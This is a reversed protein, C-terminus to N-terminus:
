IQGVTNIYECKEDTVNESPGWLQLENPSPSNLYEKDKVAIFEPCITQYEDGVDLNEVLPHFTLSHFMM